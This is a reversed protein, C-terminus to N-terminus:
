SITATVTVNGSAPDITLTNERVMDTAIVSFTDNDSTVNTGAIAVTASDGVQKNAGVGYTVELSTENYKVVEEGTIGIDNTDVYTVTVYGRYVVVDGTMDAAPIASSYALYGKDVDGVTYIFGTGNAGTVAAPAEGAVVYDSSSETDDTNMITYKVFGTTVVTDANLAASADGYAVYDAGIKATTAIAIM